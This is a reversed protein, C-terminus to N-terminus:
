AARAVSQMSGAHTAGHRTVVRANFYEPNHSVAQFYFQRSLPGQVELGSPEGSLCSSTERHVTRECRCSHAATLHFMLSGSIIVRMLGHLGDPNAGTLSLNRELSSNSYKSCDDYKM